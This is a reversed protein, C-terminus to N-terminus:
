CARLSKLGGAEFERVRGCPCLPHLSLCATGGGDGLLTDQRAEGSLVRNPRNRDRRRRPALPPTSSDAVSSLQRLFLLPGHTALTVQTKNLGGM